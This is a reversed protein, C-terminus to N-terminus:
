FLCVRRIPCAWKRLLWDCFLGHSLLVAVHLGALHHSSVQLALILRILDVLVEESVLEVSLVVLLIFLAQYHSPGNSEEKCALFVHRYLRQAHQM